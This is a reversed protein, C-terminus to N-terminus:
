PHEKEPASTYFHATPPPYPITPLPVPTTSLPDPVATPSEDDPKKTRCYRCDVQSWIVWDGSITRRTVVTCYTHCGDNGTPCSHSVTPLLSVGAHCGQLVSGRVLRTSEPEPRTLTHNKARSIIWAMFSENSEVAATLAGSGSDNVLRLSIRGDSDFPVRFSDGRLSGIPSRRSRGFPPM